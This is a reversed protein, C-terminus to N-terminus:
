ASVPVCRVQRLTGTFSEVRQRAAQAALVNFGPAVDSVVTACQGDPLTLKWQGYGEFGSRFFDNDLDLGAVVADRVQLLAGELAENRLKEPLFADGSFLPRM